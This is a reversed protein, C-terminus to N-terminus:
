TDFAKILRHRNFKVHRKEAWKKLGEESTKTRWLDLQQLNTLPALKELGNDTIKLCYTLDLFRLRTLTSLHGLSDDSIRLGCLTLNVLNTFLGLLHASSDSLERGNGSTYEITDNDKVESLNGINLTELNTLTTLANFVADTCFRLTLSKLRSFLPLTGCESARDSIICLHTLNPLTTPLLTSTSVFWRQLTISALSRLPPGSILDCMTPPIADIHFTAYNTIFLSAISRINAKEITQNIFQV